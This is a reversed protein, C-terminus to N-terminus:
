KTKRRFLQAPKGVSGISIEGTSELKGEMKRRFLDKDLNQGLVAEHIRRLQYITFTRGLLHDPDPRSKYRRRLDEVGKLVILDQEFPLADQNEPLELVSKASPVVYGLALDPNEALVEAVLEFKQTTVHAVSMVWGRSDRTPEDFVQLQKPEIGKLGCKERLAIEVAESLRERERVMRGPLAWEGKALGDQRRHLLFALRDVKGSEDQAVTFLAVDVAVHPGHFGALEPAEGHKGEENSRSKEM